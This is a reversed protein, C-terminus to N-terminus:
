FVLLIFKSPWPRSPFAAALRRKSSRRLSKRRRGNSSRLPNKTRLTKRTRSRRAAFPKLKDVPPPPSQRNAGNGLSSRLVGRLLWCSYLNENHRLTVGNPANINALTRQFRQAAPRVFFVVISHDDLGEVVDLVGLNERLGVGIAVLQDAFRECCNTERLSRAPSRTAIETGPWLPRARNMLSGGTSRLFIGSM